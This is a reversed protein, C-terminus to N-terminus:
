SSPHRNMRTLHYSSNETLREKNEVGRSRRFNYEMKRLRFTQDVPITKLDINEDALKMLVEAESSYIHSDRLCKDDYDYARIEFTYKSFEGKISQVTTGLKKAEPMDHGGASRNYYFECADGTAYELTLPKDKKGNRKLAIIVMFPAKLYKAYNVDMNSPRAWDEFWVENPHSHYTGIYQTTSLVERAAKIASDIKPNPQIEDETRRTVNGVPFIYDCETHGNQEFGFLLGHSEAQNKSVNQPFYQIADLLITSFSHQILNLTKLKTM